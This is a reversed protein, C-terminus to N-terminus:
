ETPPKSLDRDLAIRRLLRELIRREEGSLAAFFAADNEDALEALRPVLGRAEPTLVLLQGRGGESGSQRELMGKDALRDALKSIAGRTMGMRAALQSPSIGEADYLMRLFVWEAVTVGQAEVKRAFSHSVANSVMRLWYGLHSQLDSPPPAPTKSRTM